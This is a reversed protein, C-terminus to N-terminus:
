MVDRLQDVKYRQYVFEQNYYVEEFYLLTSLDVNMGSASATKAIFLQLRECLMVDDDMMSSIIESQQNWVASAFRYLDYEDKLQKFLFGVFQKLREDYEITDEILIEKVKTCDLFSHGDPSNRDFVLIQIDKNSISTSHYTQVEGDNLIFFTKGQKFDGQM